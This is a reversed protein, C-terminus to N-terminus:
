NNYCNILNNVEERLVWRLIRYQFFGFKKSFEGWDQLFWGMPAENFIKTFSRAYVFGLNDLDQIRKQMAPIDIMLLDKHKLLIKNIQESHQTPKTNPDHDSLATVQDHWFNIVNKLHEKDLKVGRYDFHSEIKAIQKSSLLWHRWSM